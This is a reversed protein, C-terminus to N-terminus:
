VQLQVVIERCVIMQRGCRFVVCEAEGSQFRAGSHYAVDHADSRRSPLMPELTTHCRGAHQVQTVHREKLVLLTHKFLALEYKSNHLKVSKSEFTISGPRQLQM